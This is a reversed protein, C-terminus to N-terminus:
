RKQIIKLKTWHGLTIADGDNLTIDVMPAIEIKNISTGNSSGIDRVTLQGDPQRNILAHRHSVADDWDLAIDPHIARMQSNRGVLTNTKELDLIIPAQQAPPEPSDPHRLTPDITIEVAWTISRVATRDSSASMPANQKVTAGQDPLPAAENPNVTVPAIVPKIVPKIVPAIVPAVPLEGHGGTSFNYGCIECFKGSALEHLTGCDPCSQAASVASVAAAVNDPAGNAMKVGCESCYDAETSAHGKPCSYTAM